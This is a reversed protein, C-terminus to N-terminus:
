RPPILKIASAVIRPGIPLKLHNGLCGVFSAFWAAPDKPPTEGTLERVHEALRLVFYRAVTQAPKSQKNLEYKSAAFASAEELAAVCDWATSLFQRDSLEVRAHAIARTHAHLTNRAPVSLATMSALLRRANAEVAEIEQRQTKGADLDAFKAIQAEDNALNVLTAKQSETLRSPLLHLLLECRVSGPIFAPDIWRACGRSFDPKQRRDM